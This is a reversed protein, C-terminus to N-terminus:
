IKPKRKEKKPTVADNEEGDATKRSKQTVGSRFAAAESATLQPLEM